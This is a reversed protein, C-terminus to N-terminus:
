VLLAVVHALKVYLTGFIYLEILIHLRLLVQKLVLTSNSSLRTRPWSYCLLCLRACKKKLLPSM